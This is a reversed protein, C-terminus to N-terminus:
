VKMAVTLKEPECSGEAWRDRGSSLNLKLEEVGHCHSGFTENRDINADVFSLYGSVDNRNLSSYIRKVTDIAFDSDLKENAMHGKELLAGLRM